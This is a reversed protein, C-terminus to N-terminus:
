LRRSKRVHEYADLARHRAKAHDVIPAPYHSPPTGAEWPAHIDRDSLAALEPVWRRIYAGSVDFKRSQLVPNMMRFFPASEVGTGANWQWNMANSAPDYDVLTEAFWREGLRWDILLDKILFSAVVMRVRNHMVGTQWLERMGADVLPYGTQGRQWARLGQPDDRWPMADFESRLNCSAMDPYEWLLSWAFERWGLEAFFKERGTRVDRERVAQRIQRPTVQGFRLYASLGSTADMAPFDREVGYRSLATDIFTELHEHAASESVEHHAELPRTWELSAMEDELATAAVWRDWHSVDEWWFDLNEPAPLVPRHDDIQCAARWFATFVKFPQNAQTRVTWPEHVLNGAFSHAEIGADRLTRKLDTDTERGDPDYRRNWLVTRAGSRQVLEPLVERANGRCVHLAGGRVKLTADFTTLTKGLWWDSATMASKGDELISVCFLPAGIRSAAFLAENDALRFDERFWVIVPSNTSMALTMTKDHAM